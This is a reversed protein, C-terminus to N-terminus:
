RGPAIRGLLREYLSRLERTMTEHRFRDAFRQRGEAGMAHRLAPDAALRLIGDKLGGLDRPPLLIGTEPLVVERAGDIDYSIVPRGVLLAQPIVRALGERLSPHIVADVASLLEPIRGPPVLGTLIFRDRIGLRELDAILRDRLIGDGIWVFRVRPDARLVEPAVAIIDDHGKLEFLRAVTAFAVDGDGLGLERRVEDRPRPPNLFADADMGSYVTQFQAEQGVRARIAQETMADCVSVIAHCRTAAWRELRIYMWNRFPTEFTGFPMGHITHVVVPVRGHWAAARGLIGAKSSHTHVVDPRIRRFAERLKLYARLDTLPRIPRVLEPMLEVKLGSERAREFLDGEPGEAPGTILTVDDGYAHHLDEVTLLTNEQAGGLILRTIVHVIRM